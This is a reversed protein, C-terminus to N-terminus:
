NWKTKKENTKRKLKEETKKKRNKRKIWNKNENAFEFWKKAVNCM